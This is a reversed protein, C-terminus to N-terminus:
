NQIVCSVFGSGTGLELISFMNKNKGYRKKVIRDAEYLACDTILYSDDSPIYIPSKENPIKVSVDKYNIRIM